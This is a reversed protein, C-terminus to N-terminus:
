GLFWTIFERHRILYNPDISNLQDNSLKPVEGYRGPAQYLYGSKIEDVGGAVRVRCYKDGDYRLVEVERIPAPKNPEDGLWEFPYDTWATM